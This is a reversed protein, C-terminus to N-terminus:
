GRRQKAFIERLQPLSEEAALAGRAEIDEVLGFEWAPVGQLGPRVVLDASELAHPQTSFAALDVTAALMDRLNGPRHSQGVPLIIDVAIVRDAGLTRAVDVPLNDVIGGDVLLMEGLEVPPFLGPVASSALAAGVVSGKTLVVREGSLIDCAVAAFPTTLDDFTAKGVAQEIFRRLPSTDFVSMPRRWAIDAIDGWSLGIMLDRMEAATLGAAWAAGVLAGASTGVIFDPRLGERELVSIVGVHAAGRVAGGGLAVGIREPRPAQKRFWSM